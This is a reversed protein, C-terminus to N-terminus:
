TYQLWEWMAGGDGGNGSGWSDADSESVVSIRAGENLALGNADAM